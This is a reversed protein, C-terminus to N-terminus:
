TERAQLAENEGVSAGKNSQNMEDPNMNQKHGRGGGPNIISREHLYHARDTFTLRLVQGEGNALKTVALNTECKAEALDAFRKKVRKAGDYYALTFQEYFTGKFRNVDIHIKVTVNGSKILLPEGPAPRSKAKV